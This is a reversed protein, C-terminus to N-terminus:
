AQAAKAAMTSANEEKLRDSAARKKELQEERTKLTKSLAVLRAEAGSSADKGQGKQNFTEEQFRAIKRALRETMLEFVSCMWLAKELNYAAQYFSGERM